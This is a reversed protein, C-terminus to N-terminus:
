SWNEQWMCQSHARPYVGYQLAAKRLSLKNARVEEIARALTEETYQSAKGTNM